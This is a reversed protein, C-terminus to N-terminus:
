ARPRVIRGVAVLCGGTLVLGVGGFTSALSPAILGRCLIPVGVVAAIIGWRCIIVRM